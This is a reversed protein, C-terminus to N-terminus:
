ETGESIKGILWFSFAVDAVLISFAIARQEASTYSVASLWGLVVLCQGTVLLAVAAKM